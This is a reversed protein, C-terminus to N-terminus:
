WYTTGFGFSFIKLGKDFFFSVGHVMYYTHAKPKCFLVGQEIRHVIHVRFLLIASFEQSSVCALNEPYVSIPILLSMWKELFNSNMDRLLKPSAAGPSPTRKASPRGISQVLSM